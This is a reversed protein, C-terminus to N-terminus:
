IADSVSQETQQKVPHFIQIGPLLRYDLTYSQNRSSYDENERLFINLKELKDRDDLIKKRNGRFNRASIVNTSIGIKEMAKDLGISFSNSHSLVYRVLARSQANLKLIDKLYAKFSTSIENEFFRMYSESIVMAYKNLKKSYQAVEIINFQIWDGEEKNTIKIISQQIESFKEELWKNHNKSKYNLHKQIEYLSFVRMPRTDETQMDYSNDGFYTAIDIIDRHLQNLKFGKLEIKYVEDEHIITNLHQTKGKEYPAFINYKTEKVTTPAQKFRQLTTM